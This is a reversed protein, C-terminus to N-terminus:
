SFHAVIDQKTINKLPNKYKEDSRWHYSPWGRLQHLRGKNKHNDYVIGYLEAIKQELETDISKIKDIINPRV